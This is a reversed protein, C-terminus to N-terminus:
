LFNWGVLQQKSCFSSILFIMLLDSITNFSLRRCWTQHELGNWLSFPQFVSLVPKTRKHPNFQWVKELAKFMTFGHTINEFSMYIWIQRWILLPQKMWLILSATKTNTCILSRPHSPLCPHNAGRVRQGPPSPPPLPHKYSMCAPSEDFGGHLLTGQLFPTKELRFPMEAKIKPQTQNNFM